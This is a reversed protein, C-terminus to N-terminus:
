NTVFVGQHGNGQFGHCARRGDDVGKRGSGGALWSINRGVKGGLQISYSLHPCAGDAVLGLQDLCHVGSWPYDQLPQGQLAVLSMRVGNLIQGLNM